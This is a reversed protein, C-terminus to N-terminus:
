EWYGAAVPGIEFIGKNILSKSYRRFLRNAMRRYIKLHGPTLQNQKKDTTAVYARRKSM